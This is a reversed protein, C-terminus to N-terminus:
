QRNYAIGAKQARDIAIVMAPVITVGPLLNSRLDQEIEAAKGKKRAELELAWGQLANACMIFKTGMKQLNEIGLGVIADTLLGFNPSQLAQALLHADAKTPRHFPNRAYPKGTADKLGHYDGLGYKAWMADNFGQAISSGPGIGYLTYAAGVQGAGTKYAAAYTSLYNLVHLLGFGNLHRPCDFLCRNTGRVEKIWDDPGGQRALATTEFASVPLGAAVAGGLIRRLFGRRPTRDSM